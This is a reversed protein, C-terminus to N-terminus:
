APIQEIQSGIGGTEDNIWAAIRKVDVFGDFFLQIRQVNEWFVM